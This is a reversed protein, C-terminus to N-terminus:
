TIVVIDRECPPASSAFIGNINVFDEDSCTSASTRFSFMLVPFSSGIDTVPLELFTLSVILMLCRVDVSEATTALLLRELYESFITCLRLLLIRPRCKECVM